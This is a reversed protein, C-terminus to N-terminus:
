SQAGKELSQPLISNYYDILQIVDSEKKLNLKETTIYKKLQATNNDLHKLIQKKSLNIRKAPSSESVIYYSSVDKYIPPKYTDYGHDPKEAQIFIKKPKFLLKTEGKNLPNFYGERIKGVEAYDFIKYTKGDFVAQISKRRLLKRPTNNEDLLEVADYFADYRMLAKTRNKKNIVTEGHKYTPNMYPTGEIPVEEITIGIQTDTTIGDGNGVIQGYFTFPIALVLFFYKMVLIKIGKLNCFKGFIM